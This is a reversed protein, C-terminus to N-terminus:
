ASPMAKIRYQSRIRIARGERTEIGRETCAVTASGYGTVTLTGRNLLTWIRDNITRVVAPGLSGDGYVDFQYEADFGDQAFTAVPVDSVTTWLLQPLATDTAGEAEYMRAGTLTSVGGAATDAAFKTKIADLIPQQAM